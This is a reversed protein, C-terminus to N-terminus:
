IFSNEYLWSVLKGLIYSFSVMNIRLKQLYIFLAAVVVGYFDM